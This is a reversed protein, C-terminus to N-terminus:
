IFPLFQVPLIKKYALQGEPLKNLIVLWQNYTGLPAVIHGNIKLQNILQRPITEAAATLIIHDFPAMEPWGEHGDRCAIHVNNYAMLALRQKAENALEENIEISYVESVLHSLVAAQYGSGTGIELVRDSHQLKLLETMIAVIFPQSISQQHLIPLARNEYALKQLHKPIFQHRQVQSLAAHVQRHLHHIGTYAFSAMIEQDITKLMDPLSKHDHM